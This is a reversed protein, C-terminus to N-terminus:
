RDMLIFLNKKLSVYYWFFNLGVIKFSEISEISIQTVSDFLSWQNRRGFQIFIQHSDIGEENEQVIIDRANWSFINLHIQKTGVECESELKRPKIGHRIDQCGEISSEVKEEFWFKLGSHKLILGSQDIWDNGFIKEFLNKMKRLDEEKIKIFENPSIKVAKLNKEANEENEEEIMQKFDEEEIM